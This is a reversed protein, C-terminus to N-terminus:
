VNEGPSGYLFRWLCVTQLLRFGSVIWIGLSQLISSYILIYLYVCMSCAIVFIPKAWFNIWTKGYSTISFDFLSKPWGLLYSCFWDIRFSILGSYANSPSISFTFVQHGGSEFLWSMPFSRSALFSQPCSSFPVVSSSITPHCWWSLPCSNSCVEPSLSPCPLRALQLGHLWLTSSSRTVSRCCCCFRLYLFDLQLLGYIQTYAEQWKFCLPFLQNYSDHLEHFWM